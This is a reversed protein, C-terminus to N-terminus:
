RPALLSVVHDSDFYETIQAIEGKENFDWIACYDNRYDKGQRTVGTGVFAAVVSDGAVIFRNATYTIGDEFASNVGSLLATIEDRGQYKGSFHHNGTLHYTVDEALLNGLATMDGATMASFTKEVQAALDISAGGSISM